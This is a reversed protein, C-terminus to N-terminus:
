IIPEPPLDTLPAAIARVTVCHVSPKKLKIILTPYKDIKITGSNYHLNM